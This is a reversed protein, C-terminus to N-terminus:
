SAAELWKEAQEVSTFKPRNAIMKQKRKWETVLAILVFETIQESGVQWTQADIRRIQEFVQSTTWTSISSSNANIGTKLPSPPNVPLNALVVGLSQISEAAQTTSTTLSVFVEGLAIKDPVKAM